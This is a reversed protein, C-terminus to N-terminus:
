PSDVQYGIVKSGELVPEMGYNQFLWVGKKKQVCLSGAVAYWIRCGDIRELQLMIAICNKLSRRRTSLSFFIIRLFNQRFNEETKRIGLLAPQAQELDLESILSRAALLAASEIVGAVISNVM